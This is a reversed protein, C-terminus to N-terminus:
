SLPTSHRFPISFQTLFREKFGISKCYLVFPYWRHKGNMAFTNGAHDRDARQTDETVLRHIEGACLDFLRLGFDCAKVGRAICGSDLHLFEILFGDRMDTQIVSRDEFDILLHHCVRFENVRDLRDDPLLADICLVGDLLRLLVEGTDIFCIRIVIDM